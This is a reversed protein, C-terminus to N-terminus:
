INLIIAFFISVTFYFYFVGSFCTINQNFYSINNECISVSLFSLLLPIYFPSIILKIIYRLHIVSFSDKDYDSSLTIVILIIVYVIILSSVSFNIIFLDYNDKFLYVIQFYSFM